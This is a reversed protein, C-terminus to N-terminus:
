NLYEHQFHEYKKISNRVYSQMKVESNGAKRRRLKVFTLLGGNLNNSVVEM